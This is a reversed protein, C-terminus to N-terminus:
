RAQHAATPLCSMSVADAAVTGLLGKDMGPTEVKGWGVWDLLQITPM